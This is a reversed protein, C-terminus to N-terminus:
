ELDQKNVIREADSMSVGTLTLYPQAEIQIELEIQEAHNRVYFIDLNHRAARDQKLIKRVKLGVVADALASGLIRDMADAFIDNASFYTLSQQNYKFQDEKFAEPTILEVQSDDAKEEDKAATKSPTSIANYNVKPPSSEKSVLGGAAEQAAERVRNHAKLRSETDPENPYQDELFSGRLHQEAFGGMTKEVDVADEINEEYVKNAVTLMEEALVEPRVEVKQYTKLSEAADIALEAFKEDVDTAEQVAKRMYKRELRAEIEDTNQELLIQYQKRLHMNAVVYGAAASVGAVLVYKIVM